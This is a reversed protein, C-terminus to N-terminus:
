GRQNPLQPLAGTDAVEAAIAALKRHTHQSAIRLLDFAQDRTIKSSHMLIGMAIGIERSTQLAIELNKARSEAHARAAASAGHTALLLGITESVEDFSHPKRAYMNLGSILDRHTEQFLRFSLMSVIGVTEVARNGFEPWRPDTRLDAAHFTSKELLADVCPGSSLEYQIEDTRLVIEDTAAVTTFHGDPRAITVGAYEAGPVRRVALETLRHLVEDPDEYPALGDGLETFLQTLESFSLAAKM